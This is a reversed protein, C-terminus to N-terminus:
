NTAVLGSAGYVAKFTAAKELVVSSTYFRDGLCLADKIDVGQENVVHAIKLLAGVTAVYVAEVDKRVILGATFPHYSEEGSMKECDKLVVQINQITTAAGAYPEDFACIFRYIDSGSWAWNIFGNTATHLFPYYSSHSEDLGTIEFNKGDKIEQLFENLFDLEIGLQYNIYDIPKRLGVPFDFARMKVIEGKHFMKEGGYIIQLNVSGHNNGHLIRWTHHAGGRYMPLDISMFDLFYRPKFLRATEETFPWAAGMGIGLVNGVVERRLHEDNNIDESEYYRVGAKKLVQRLTMDYMEEELHRKASFVVVEVSLTAHARKIFESVLYSGGLVIIKEIKEYRFEM